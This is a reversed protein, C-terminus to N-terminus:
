PDENSVKSLLDFWIGGFGLVDQSLRPNAVSEATSPNKARSACARAFRSRSLAIARFKLPYRSVDLSLAGFDM